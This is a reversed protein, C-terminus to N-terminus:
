KAVALRTSNPIPQVTAAGRAPAVTENSLITEHLGDRFKVIERSSPEFRSWDEHLESILKAHRLNHLQARRYRRATEDEWLVEVQHATIRTITGPGSPQYDNKGVWVVCDGLALRRAVATNMVIGGSQDALSPLDVPPREPVARGKGSHRRRLPGRAVGM